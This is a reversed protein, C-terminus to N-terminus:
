AADKKKADPLLAGVAGTLFIGVTIISEATDPKLAAGASTALMILGRWTSSEQGRAVLYNKLASLDM